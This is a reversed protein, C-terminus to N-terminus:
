RTACNTWTPTIVLAMVAPSGAEVRMLDTFSGYHPPVYAAINDLMTSNCTLITSPVPAVYSVVGIALVLIVAILM